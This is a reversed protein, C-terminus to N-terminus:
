DLSRPVGLYRQVVATEAIAPRISDLATWSPDPLSNPIGSGILALKSNKRLCLACLTCNAHHWAGGTTEQAANLLLRRHLFLGQRENTPSHALRMMSFASFLDMAATPGM